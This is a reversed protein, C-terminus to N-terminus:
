KDKLFCLFMTWLKLTEDTPAKSLRGCDLITLKGRGLKQQFRRDSLLPKLRELAHVIPRREQFQDTGVRNILDEINKEEASRWHQKLIETLGPWASGVEGLWELIMDESMESPHFQFTSVQVGKGKYLDRAEALESDLVVIEIEVPIRSGLEVLRGAGSPDNNFVVVASPSAKSHSPNETLCGSVITWLTSFKGSGEGGCVGITNSAELGAVNCWVERGSRSVGLLVSQQLDPVESPYGLHDRPSATEEHVIPPRTSSAGNATGSRVLTLWGYLRARESKPFWDPGGVLGELRDKYLQLLGADAIQYEIHSDAPFRERKLDREKRHYLAKIAVAAWLREGPLLLDALSKLLIHDEITHDDAEAVSLLLELAAYPAGQCFFVPTSSRLHANFCIAQLCRQIQERYAGSRIDEVIIKFWDEDMLTQLTGVIDPEPAALEGVQRDGWVAGIGAILQDLNTDIMEGKSLDPDVASGFLGIPQQLVKTHSRWTNANLLVNRAAQAIDDCWTWEVPNPPQSEPPEEKGRGQEKLWVKMIQTAAMNKANARHCYEVLPRIDSMFNDGVMALRIRAAPQWKLSFTLFQSRPCNLDRNLAYITRAYFPYKTGGEGHLKEALRDFLGAIRGLGEAALKAADADQNLRTRQAEHSAGDLRGAAQRCAAVQGHYWRILSEMADVEGRPQAAQSTALLQEETILPEKTVPDPTNLKVHCIKQWQTPVHGETAVCYRIGAKKLSRLLERVGPFLHREWNGSWFAAMARDIPFSYKITWPDRIREARQLLEMRQSENDMLAKIAARYDGSLPAFNNRMEYWAVLVAYSSRTNWEQRFDEFVHGRPGRKGKFEAHCKYVARYADILKEIDLPILDVLKALARRWAEERGLESNILTGDLDLLAIRQGEAPDWNGIQQWHHPSGAQGSPQNPKEEAM